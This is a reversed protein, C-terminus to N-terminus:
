NFNESIKIANEQTHVDPTCLLFIQWEDRKKDTGAYEYM